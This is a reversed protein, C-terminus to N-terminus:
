DEKSQDMPQSQQDEKRRGGGEAETLKRPLASLGLRLRKQNEVKAAAVAEGEETMGADASSPDGAASLTTKTGSQLPTVGKLRGRKAIVESVQRKDLIEQPVASVSALASASSTGTPYQSWASGMLSFEQDQQVAQEQIAPQAALYQAFGSGKNM